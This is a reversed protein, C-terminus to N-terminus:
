AAPQMRSRMGSRVPTICCVGRISWITSRPLKAVYADDLVSGQEATWNTPNGVQSQVFKSARVSDADYDFGDVRAAGADLMAVSHLGSGCGIDLISLGDLSSRGMFQLIHRKSTQVKETDFNKQIFDHWNKGFEFRKEEIQDM